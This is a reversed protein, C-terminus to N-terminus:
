KLGRYGKSFNKSDSRVKILELIDKDESQEDRPAFLARERLDVGVHPQVLYYIALSKRYVGLPQTLGQSMGHWSNQTTDFLIARNFKPLVEKVLEGPSNTSANHSWLGLHGGHEVQLESSLYIIINLKRLLNMKPHISYDLHPNLNGGTGHIHWGGGHLGHDVYIKEQIVDEVISVFHDSMLEQFVQYTFKPFINWNNFAKKDEIANKYYYWAGDEYDMFENELHRAIEVDFFNDIVCHDFPLNGKFSDLSNNLADVNVFKLHNNKM